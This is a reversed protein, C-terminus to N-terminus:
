GNSSKWSTPSRVVSRYSVKTDVADLAETLRPILGKGYETNEYILVIERWGYAEAIAAIAKVQSSDYAYAATVTDRHSDRIRLDLKTHFHPHEKYFGHYAMWICSNAMNGIQSKLDLVVGIPILVERAM